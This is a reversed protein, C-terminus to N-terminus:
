TEEEDRQFLKGKVQVRLVEGPKVVLELPWGWTRWRWQSSERSGLQYKQSNIGLFPKTKTM